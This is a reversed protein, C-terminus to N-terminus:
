LIHKKRHKETKTFHIDSILSILIEIKKEDKSGLSTDGGSIHFVPMDLYHALTSACLAEYRDGLVLLIFKKKKKFYNSLEKNLNIVSELTKNRLNRYSYNKIVKINKFNDKRIDKYTNGFFKQNHSGCVVIKLDIEKTKKCKLLM